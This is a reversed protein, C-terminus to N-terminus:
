GGTNIGLLPILVDRNGGVENCLAASELIAMRILIPHFGLQFDIAQDGFSM